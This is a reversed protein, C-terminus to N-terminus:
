LVYKDLLVRTLNRGLQLKEDALTNVSESYTQENIEGAERRQEILRLKEDFARDNSRFKWDHIERLYQDWFPQELMADLLGNGEELALVTAYAQEIADDSVAAMDQYLMGESQWPLRLRSALRTQYALYIEVEEARSPRSLADARAIDNVRQLRAAGKSLKVLRAELEAANTSYAYAQSALAQVGMNNFVESSADACSTPQEATQFLKERLPTDLDVADILEWVRRSLAKRSAGGARFDASQTLSDIIRFFGESNPENMLNDWAQARYTGLGPSNAGWLSSDDDVPWKARANGAMPAYTNQRPLGVSDRYQFLIQRQTEHLSDIDLRARAVVLAQRSGNVVTPVTKIPNDRLDLFFGKPRQKNLLGDPWKDIGTKSLNLVKLRPMREVDPPQGLPNNDLRLTQLRTLNRLREVTETDLAIHNGSLRLTELLHMSAVKDPFRTLQCRRASFHRLQTFSKLLGETGPSFTMEDLNLTSIQELYPRIDPLKKWWPELNFGRFENSLDLAYGQDFRTSREGFVLTKRQFCDMLRDTIFTIERPALLTNDPEFPTNKIKWADLINELGTLEQKLNSLLQVPDAGPPLSRIFNDVEHERLHPYLNQVRQELTVPQRSFAPGRLLLSTELEAVPRISPELLLTRREAPALTKAMIWQKFAQGQGLRYGISRRAQEPLARLLAEHFDVAESLPRHQGDVVEYRGDGVQLLLRVQTADDPGVSCRLSGDATSDRIEVRLDGLAESNFRLANLALRETDATMRENQYFGESARTARTEFACERARSKLDLPLRRQEVVIRLDDQRAHAVLREAIITPLEPYQRQLVQVRRDTSRQRSRYVYDAIDTKRGEVRNALRDRLSKVKAQRSLGPGVLAELQPEDLFRVVREPLRGAMVEALGIELTQEPRANANGYLRSAGLLDSREYVRLAHDSPWGPLETIMQEFWHSSPDIPSGSRIQTTTAAVDEMAKFRNVTDELLLPPEANEGHMRRLADEETGSILRINELQRSSLGDTMHGLRQMLKPGEWTLPNEGEHRWAGRGNHDLKPAYAEPRTPHQLRYQATQPDKRTVYHRGELPLIDRGQHRHLGLRDPRSDTPLSLDPHAYPEIDPHWLRTEGTASSVPQLSEVWASAKLRFADAISAGAAFAALQVVDTVVGVVHDAAQAWLGEALDVVGEIVDSTLQYVTYALMLEGLGPIFPTAILLAANFIDIVIKKFNDWWAWRAKRDTDATSVAIDRADNLIKNLKNQYLHVWLEGTIPVIDFSLRPNDIPVERWNPRPDSAEKRHWKVEFLRQQLGGFFHGRQSHDIFRSFFQRYTMGTSAILADDRLQRTLENMFAVPSPYQKLPHQPDQPVYAIVPMVEHSQELDATILVIGTLPSDLISLDAFQVPKGKWTTNRQGELMEIFMDRAGADIDGTMTAQEVAARFAAKESEVIRSQLWYKALRDGQLLQEELYRTYRAGIDLERCLTQFRAISLKHKIPLVDFQGRQDPQSIYDSDPECTEGPAFNHLAADILSVTHTFVGGSTNIFAYWPLEKPLYLHLYTKKVDVDIDLKKLADTLLPEAFEYVNQLDDLFRDVKNRSSWLELSAKQLRSRDLASATKLWPAPTKEARGLERVNRLSTSQFVPHIRSKILEYHRGKHDTTSTSGQLDPM